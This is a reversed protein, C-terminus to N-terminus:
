YQKVLKVTAQSQGVTLTMYYIGNSASSIDIQEVFNGAGVNMEEGAVMRGTADHLTYAVKEGNLGEINLLFIGASPNPSVNFSVLNELEFIGTEVIVNEEAVVCGNSDTVSVTYSGPALGDIDEENSTFGNSSTWSYTYDPTGGSATVSIAGGSGTGDDGTISDVTVTLESPEAVTGEADSACGNADVICITYTDAELDEFDGSDQFNVCDISYQYPATGGTGEAMIEGDGEGFCSIDEPTLAVGVAMPNVIEFLVSDICGEVDEVYVMYSGACLDLYDGFPDQDGDELWFQYQGNGGSVTTEIAADCSDACSVETINAGLVIEDPAGLTVEVTATCGLADMVTATYTGGFTYFVDDDQFNEGDLSYTLPATGGSGNLVLIGDESNYCTAPAQNQESVSLENPSSVMFPGATAICGSDDTVYVTYEEGAELDTFDIMEQSDMFNEDLSVSVVGTEGSFSGTISAEDDFCELDAFTVDLSLGDTSVEVDTSVSCVADTVTITYTGEGLDSFQGVGIPSGGDIQYDAAIQIGSMTVNIEGDAGGSCEPGIAEVVDFELMCDFLCSGDDIEAESDYNNATSDTCGFVGGFCIESQVENDGDGEVFVQVNICGTMVGDTTFQGILVKNDDGAVGNVSSGDPLNVTFWSGGIGGEISFSSGPAGGGPELTSTWDGAVFIGAGPSSNHLKGITVYSDWESSPVLAFGAENINEASVGGFNSNWFTTTTNISTIDEDVGFVASVFDDTNQLVAYLRYTIYGDLNAGDSYPESPHVLFEEVEIDVLQGFALNVSAILTLGLLLRKM